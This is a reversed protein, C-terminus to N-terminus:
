ARELAEAYFVETLCSLLQQAIAARKCFATTVELSSLEGDRLKQLLRAASHMETIEVEKDSLKESLRAADLVNTHKNPGCDLSQVFEHSLLWERPTKKINDQRKQKVASQWDFAANHETPVISASMSDTNFISSHTSM